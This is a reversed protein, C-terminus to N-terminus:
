IKGAGSAPLSTLGAVVNVTPSLARSCIAVQSCAVQSCAIALLRGCQKWGQHIAIVFTQVQLKQRLEMSALSDLGQSALPQELEVETGTLSSVIAAIQAQLEERSKSSRTASSSTTPDLTSTPAQAETSAQLCTPYNNRNSSLSCFTSSPGHEFAHPQNEVGYRKPFVPLCGSDGWVRSILASQKLNYPLPVPLCELWVISSCYCSSSSEKLAMLM